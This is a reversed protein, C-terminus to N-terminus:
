YDYLSKANNMITAACLHNKNLKGFPVIKGQNVGHTMCLLKPWVHVTVTYRDPGTNQRCSHTKTYLHHHGCCRLKYVYRYTSFFTVNQIAHEAHQAATAAIQHGPTKTCAHRASALKKQGVGFDIMALPWHRASAIAHSSVESGFFWGFLAADEVGGVAGVWRRSSRSRPSWMKNQQQAHAEETAM